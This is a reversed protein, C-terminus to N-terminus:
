EPSYRAAAEEARKRAMAERIERTRAEAKRTKRIVSDREVSDLSKLRDEAHDATEGAPRLGLGKLCLRVLEERRDPDNILTEAPVIQSLERLVLSLLFKWAPQLLRPRALFWEDRLLWLVIAAVRRAEASLRSLMQREAPGPIPLGLARFHDCALAALNQEDIPLLFDAPCEALRHLLQDLQVETEPV